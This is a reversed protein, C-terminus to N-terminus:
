LTRTATGKASNIRYGAPIIRPRSKPYVSSRIGATGRKTLMTSNASMSTMKEEQYTKFVEGSWNPIGIELQISQTGKNMSIQSKM